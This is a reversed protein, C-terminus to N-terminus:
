KLTYIAYDKKTGIKLTLNQKANAVKKPVDFVIIGSKNTLPKMKTNVLDKDYALLDSAHYEYDKYYLTAIVATDALGYHPCFTAEKKGNNRVTATVSIFADGKEPKFVRFQGNKIEKKKEAKKVTIKWNGITAKKGLSLKAEKPAPTASPAPADTSQMSEAAEKITDAIQEAPTDGCGTLLLAFCSTLLILKKKM